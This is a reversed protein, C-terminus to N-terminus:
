TEDEELDDYEPLDGPLEMLLKEGVSLKHGIAECLAVWEPGSLQIEVGWGSRTGKLTYTKTGTYSAVHLEVGTVDILLKM